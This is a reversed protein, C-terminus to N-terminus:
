AAHFLIPKSATHCALRALVSRMLYPPKNNHLVHMTVHQQLQASSRNSMCGGKFMEEAQVTVNQMRLVIIGFTCTNAVDNVMSRPKEVSMWATNYAANMGEWGPCATHKLKSDLIQVFVPRADM